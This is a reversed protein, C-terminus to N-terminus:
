RQVVFSSFLLDEIVQDGEESKMVRQLQALAL